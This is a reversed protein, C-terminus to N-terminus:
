SYAQRAQPSRKSSSIRPDSRGVQGAHALALRSFSGDAKPTAALTRGEPTGALPAQPAQPSGRPGPDQERQVSRVSRGAVTAGM